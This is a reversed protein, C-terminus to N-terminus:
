SLEESLSPVASNGNSRGIDSRKRANAAVHRNSRRPRIAMRGVCSAVDHGTACEPAGVGATAAPPV